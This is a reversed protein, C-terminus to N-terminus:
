RLTSQKSSKGVVKGRDEDIGDEAQAREHRDETRNGCPEANVEGLDCDNIVALVGIKIEPAPEMLADAMASQNHRMRSAVEPARNARTRM